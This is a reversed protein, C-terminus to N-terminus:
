LISTEQYAPNQPSFSACIHPFITMQDSLQCMLVDNLEVSHVNLVNEDLSSPSALFSSTLNVCCIVALNLM